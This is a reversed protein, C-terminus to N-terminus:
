LLLFLLIINYSHHLIKFKEVFGITKTGTQAQKYEDQM